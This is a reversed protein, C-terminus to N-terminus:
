GMTQHRMAPKNRDDTMSSDRPLTHPHHLLVWRFPEKADLVIGSIEMTRRSNGDVQGTGRSKAAMQLVIHSSIHKTELLSLTFSPYKKLIM